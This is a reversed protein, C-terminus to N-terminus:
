CPIWIYLWVSANCSPETNCISFTKPSNNCKLNQHRTKRKICKCGAYHRHLVGPSTWYVPIDNLVRPTNLVTPSVILVAPSVMILTPIDHTCRPSNLISPSVMLVSPSVILVSASHRSSHPPYWSYVPPHETCQPKWVFEITKGIVKGCM